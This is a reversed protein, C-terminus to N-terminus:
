KGLAGMVTTHLTERQGATARGYMESRQLALYREEIEGGPAGASLWNAFRWLSQEISPITKDRAALNDLTVWAARQHGRQEDASLNVWTESQRLLQLANQVDKMTAASGLAKAYSFEDSTMARNRATEDIEAGVDPEGHGTDDGIDPSGDDTATSRESDPTAPEGHQSQAADPSDAHDGPITPRDSDDYHLDTAIVTANAELLANDAEAGGSQTERAIAEAETLVQPGDATGVISVGDPIVVPGGAALQAETAARAAEMEAKTRRPRKPKDPEAEPQTTVPFNDGDLIEDLRESVHQGNEVTFGETAPERNATLRARLDSPRSPPTVDRMADAEDRDYVGMIVEPCYRRGWARISYYGLQQQPDDKWQPSNKVRIDGLRPSTYTQVTGDKFIGTVTCTLDPGEGQYQYTPRTRLPARTNIVAAIVQAEYAIIDGVKYSKAAIMFPNMEWHLALMTVALCAGDDGRLHAPIAHGARAMVSAFAVVDGLNKPALSGGQGAAEMPVSAYSLKAPVQDNM